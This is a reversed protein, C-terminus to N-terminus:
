GWIAAAIARRWDAPGDSVSGDPGELRLGGREVTDDPLVRWDELMVPDLLAIDEPHLHLATDLPGAGLRQAAAGCRALLVEPATAFDELAQSCLALVTEALENALTDMAAQDFARFSLRLARQRQDRAVFEDAAATRGAEEGRAFAEAIPDHVPDPEPADVPVKESGVLMEVGCIRPLGERFGEPERLNAMWGPATAVEVDGCVAAIWDSSSAM